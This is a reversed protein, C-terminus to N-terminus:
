RTEAWERQLNLALLDTDQLGAAFKAASDDGVRWNTTTHEASLNSAWVIKFFAVEPFVCGSEAGLVEGLIEFQDITDSLNRLLLVDSRALQRERPNKGLTIIEEWNWAGGVRLPEFLVQARQFHLDRLFFLLLDPLRALISSNM